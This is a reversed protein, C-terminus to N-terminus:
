ALRGPWKWCTGIGGTRGLIASGNLDNVLEPM